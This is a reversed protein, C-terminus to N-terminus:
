TDPAPTSAGGDKTETIGAASSDATGLRAGTLACTFVRLLSLLSTGSILLAPPLVSFIFRIGAQQLFGATVSRNQTQAHGANAASTIAAASRSSLLLYHLAKCVNLEKSIFIDTPFPRFHQRSGCRRSPSDGGARCNTLPVKRKKLRMFAAALALPSAHSCPSSHPCGRLAVKGRAESSLNHRFLSPWSTAPRAKKNNM